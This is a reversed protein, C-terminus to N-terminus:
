LVEGVAQLFRERRPEPLQAARNRAYAPNPRMTKSLRRQILKKRLYAFM